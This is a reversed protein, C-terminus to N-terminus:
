RHWHAHEAIERLRNGLGFILGRKDFAFPVFQLSIWEPNFASIYKKAYDYKINDPYKAPIRILQLENSNEVTYEDIYQDNLAIVAAKHRHSMIETAFRRTYDGVGDRGLELAGCIFLVKM